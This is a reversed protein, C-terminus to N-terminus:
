KKLREISMDFLEQIFEDETKTKLKQIERSVMNKEVDELSQVNKCLKYIYTAFHSAATGNPNKLYLNKYTNFESLWSESSKERNFMISDSDLVFSDDFPFGSGYSFSNGDVKIVRGNTIISKIQKKSQRYKQTTAYTVALRVITKKDKETWEMAYAYRYKKEPDDKDLFCAYVYKSGKMKGIAVSSSNSNGVALATYNDGAHDGSKASYAAEKDKDFAQQIDKIRQIASPDTIMLDYVDAQSTKQGTEPDRELSHQTSIEVIHDSLLADFAKQINEQAMLASPLATLMATLIFSKNKMHLTM